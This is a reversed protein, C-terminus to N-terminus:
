LFDWTDFDQIRRVEWFPRHLPGLPKPQGPPFRLQRALSAPHPFPSVWTLGLKVEMEPAL